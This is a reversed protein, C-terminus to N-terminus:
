EQGPKLVPKGNSETFKLRPGLGLPHTRGSKHGGPKKGMPVDIPEFPEFWHRLKSLTDKWAALVFGSDCSWSDFRSAGSM